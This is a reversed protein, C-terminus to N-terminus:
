LSVESVVEQADFVVDLIVEDVVKGTQRNFLESDVDETNLGNNVKTSRVIFESGYQPIRELPPLTIYISRKSRPLVIGKNPLTCYPLPSTTQINFAMYFETGNTLQFSSSMQKNLEFTFHIELPEIGLM